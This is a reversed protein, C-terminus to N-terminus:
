HFMFSFVVYHAEKQTSPAKWAMLSDGIGVTTDERLPFFHHERKHRGGAPTSELGRTAPFQQKRRKGAHFSYPQERAETRLATETRLNV